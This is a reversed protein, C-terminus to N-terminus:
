RSTLRSVAFFITTILFVLIVSGFIHGYSRNSVLSTDISNMIMLFLFSLVIAVITALVYLKTNKQSKLYSTFGSLGIFLGITIASGRSLWFFVLTDVSAKTAGLTSSIIFLLALIIAVKM